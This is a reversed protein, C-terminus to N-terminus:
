GRVSSPSFKPVRRTIKRNSLICDNIFKKADKLLRSLLEEYEKVQPDNIIRDITSSAKKHNNISSDLLRTINYEKSANLNDVSRVTDKVDILSEVADDIIPLVSPYDGEKIKQLAQHDLTTINRLNDKITQVLIKDPLISCAPGFWEGECSCSGDNNCTGHDSCNTCSPTPSSCGEGSWGYDCICGRLSSSCYGVGCFNPCLDSPVSCDNSSWKDNCNCFGSKSDCTGHGSCGNLSCSTTTPTPTPTPASSTPVSCDLGTWGNECYCGSYSDCSGHGSCNNPCISTSCDIGKWGSYCICAGDSACYGHGSCDNPCSAPTPTPSTSVSCDSGSWGTFCSCFSSSGSVFCTGHGCGNSCSAFSHLPLLLFFLLSILLSRILFYINHKM